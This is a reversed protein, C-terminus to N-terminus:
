KGYEKSMAFNINKVHSLNLASQTYKLAEDAKTEKTILSLITEIAADLKEM